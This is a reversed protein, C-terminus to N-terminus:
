EKVGYRRDLRDMVFAYVFILIVFVYISGQQSFWFGLPLKGIKFQNLQEIFLISCGFSVTAWILLLVAIVKINARWYRKPDPAGSIVSHCRACIVAEDKERLRSLREEAVSEEMGASKALEFTAQLAGAVQEGRLVNGEGSELEQDCIACQPM